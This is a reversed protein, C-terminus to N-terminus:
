PFSAGPTILPSMATAILRSFCSKKKRFPASKNMFFCIESL